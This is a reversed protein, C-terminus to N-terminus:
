KLVTHYFVVTTCGCFTASARCVCLSLNEPYHKYETSMHRIGVRKTCVKLAGFFTYAIYNYDYTLTM